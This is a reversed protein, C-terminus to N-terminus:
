TAGSETTSTGAEKAQSPKWSILSLICSLTKRKGVQKRLTHLKRVQEEIATEEDSHPVTHDQAIEAQVETQRIGAM